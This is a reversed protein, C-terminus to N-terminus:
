RLERLRAELQGETVKQGADMAQMRRDVEARFVAEEREELEAIYSALQFRESASLLAVHEKLESFTM